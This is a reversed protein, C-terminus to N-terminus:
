AQGHRHGLSHKAITAAIHQIFPQLQFGRGFDNLLVTTVARVATLLQTEIRVFYRDLLCEALKWM